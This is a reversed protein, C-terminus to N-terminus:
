SRKNWRITKVIMKIFKYLICCTGVLLLLLCCTIADAAWSGDFYSVGVTILMVSVYIKLFIREERSFTM